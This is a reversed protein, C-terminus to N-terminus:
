DLFTNVYCKKEQRPRFWGRDLLTDQDLLAIAAGCSAGRLCATWVLKWDEDCFPWM